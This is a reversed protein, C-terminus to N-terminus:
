RERYASGWAARMRGYIINPPYNARRGLEVAIAEARGPKFPGPMLWASGYLDLLHRDSMGRLESVFAVVAQDAM